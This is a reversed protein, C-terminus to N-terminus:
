RHHVVETGGTWADAGDLWAPVAGAVGLAGVAVVAAVVLARHHAPLPARGPHDPRRLLVLAALLTVVELVCAVTDALGVAEAAGAHPGVPLGVTRSVGWVALPVVAVAAAVLLRSRGAVGPRTAVAVEALTLLLFFVGAAGWEHLHEPVVAAHVAASALLGAVLLRRVDATRGAGTVASGTSGTGRPASPGSVHLRGGRVAVVWAVLVLNTVLLALTTYGVARGHAAVTMWQQRSLCAASCDHQMQQMMSLQDSQLVYDYGASGLSLGVAAVTAAVAVLLGTALLRRRSSLAPGFRRLAVTLAALVALVFVPLALTSTRWYSAFPEQTRSIAGVAGRLSTMWFGDAYGLVLALPLVTSWPVSARAPPAAVGAPAPAALLETM